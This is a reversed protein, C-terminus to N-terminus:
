TSVSITLVDPSKAIESGHLQDEMKTELVGAIADVINRLAEERTEGQSMCGPLELCEAIFGGDIEDPTVEISFNLTSSFFTVNDGKLIKFTKLASGVVQKWAIAFRAVRGDGRARRSTSPREPAQTGIVGGAARHTRRTLV